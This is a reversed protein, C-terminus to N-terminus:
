CIDQAVPSYFGVIRQSQGGSLAIGKSGISTQDGAPLQQLDTDLACARIITGYWAEEFESVGLISQQVTGNMHWATQDCFAVSVSSLQVSGQINCVEGLIAKLLTSKGCGVPGILYTLKGKPVRLNIDHLIPEKEMDWGFKGQSIAVMDDGGTPSSSKPLEIETFLSNRSSGYESSGAIHKEDIWFDRPTKRTDIRADAELFKQIRDFCSVAGMFSALSMILSTLPETLLAFLSLSTFM